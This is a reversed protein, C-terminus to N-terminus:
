ASVEGGLTREIFGIMTWNPFPKADNTPSASRRPATASDGHHRDLSVLITLFTAAQVARTKTM